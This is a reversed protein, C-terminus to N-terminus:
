MWGISCGFVPTGTLPNPLLNFLSGIATEPKDIGRASIREGETLPTLGDAYHTDSLSHSVLGRAAIADFFPTATWAM